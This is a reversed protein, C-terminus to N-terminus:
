IYNTINKIAETTLSPRILINAKEDNIFELINQEEPNIAFVRIQSAGGQTITQVNGYAIAHEYNGSCHYFTVWSAYSILNNPKCICVDHSCEIIQIHINPSLDHLDIRSKVLLWATVALIFVVILLVWVPGKMEKNFIFFIFSLIAGLAFSVLNSTDQFYKKLSNIESFNM